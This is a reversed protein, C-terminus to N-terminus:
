HFDRFTVLTVFYLPTTSSRAVVRLSPENVYVLRIRNRASRVKSHHKLPQFPAGAVPTASYDTRPNSDWESRVYGPQLLSDGCHRATRAISRKGITTKPLVRGPYISM